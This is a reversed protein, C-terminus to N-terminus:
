RQARAAGNSDRRLRIVLEAFHDAEVPDSRVTKGFLQEGFRYMLALVEAARIDGLEAAHRLFGVAEPYHGKEYENIGDEFPSPRTDTHVPFPPASDPPVVIALPANCDCGAADM